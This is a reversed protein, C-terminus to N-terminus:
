QGQTGAKRIDFFSDFGNLWWALPRLVATRLIRRTVTFPAGKSL